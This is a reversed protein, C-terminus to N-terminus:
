VRDSDTTVGRDSSPYIHILPQALGAIKYTLKIFIHPLATTGKEQLQGM